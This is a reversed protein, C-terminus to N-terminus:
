LLGRRTAEVAAQTRNDVELKEFLHSIHGKVTHISISLDEAIQANGRGAGLLALIERERETLEPFDDCVPESRIRRLLETAIRPSIPSEGDAASRVAAVIEEPPSDKLMYGCAGARIAGEFDAPDGSNTLMLVRAKATAECIRRTAEIGARIGVAMLVLDPTLEVARAVAQDPSQANGAILVGAGELLNRLGRLFIADEDVLVIRIQTKSLRGAGGM